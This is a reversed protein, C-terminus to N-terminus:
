RHTYHCEACQCNFRQDPFCRTITECGCDCKCKTEISEREWIAEWDDRM